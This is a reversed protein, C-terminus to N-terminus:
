FKICLPKETLLAVKLLNKAKCKKNDKRNTANTKM